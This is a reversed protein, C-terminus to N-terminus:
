KSISPPLFLRYELLFVCVVYAPPDDSAGPFFRDSQPSSTRRPGIVRVIPTCFLHSFLLIPSSSYFFNMSRSSVLFLFVYFWYRPLIFFTLLFIPCLNLFSGFLSLCFLSPFFPALSSLFVGLYWTTPPEFSTETPIGCSLLM